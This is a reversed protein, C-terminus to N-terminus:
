NKNNYVYFCFHDKCHFLKLLQLSLGSFCESAEVPNSDTVEVVATHHGVLQAIFGLQFCTLLLNLKYGNYSSFSIIHM